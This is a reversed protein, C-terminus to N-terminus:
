NSEKDTEASHAIEGLSWITGSLNNVVHEQLLEKEIEDELLLDDIIDNKM